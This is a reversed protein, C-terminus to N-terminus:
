LFEFHEELGLANQTYAFCFSVNASITWKYVTVFFGAEWGLNAYVYGRTVVISCNDELSVTLRDSQGWGLALLDISKFNSVAQKRVKERLNCRCACDRFIDCM